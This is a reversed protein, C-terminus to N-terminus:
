CAKEGTPRKFGVLGGDDCLRPLVGDDLLQFMADEVVEECARTIVEGISNLLSMALLILDATIPDMTTTPSLVKRTVM